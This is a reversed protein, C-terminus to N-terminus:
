SPAAAGAIIVIAISAFVLIALVKTAIGIWIPMAPERMPTFEITSDDKGELRRIERQLRSVKAELKTNAERATALEHELADVRAIAADHDDRFSM